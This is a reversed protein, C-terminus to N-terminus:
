GDLLVLLGEFNEDLDVALVVLAVCCGVRWM